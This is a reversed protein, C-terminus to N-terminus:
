ICKEIFHVPHQDWYEKYTWDSERTFNLQYMRFTVLNNKPKVLEEYTYRYTMGIKKMVEGSRMNKVDHTATIYPFDVQRLREIIATCAETVIGQRWYAKSLGYGLDHSENDSINVYGIPRNEDKLCVAYHYSCPLEYCRLFREELFAQAQELTELPFWPLFTNVEKDRLLSLLATADEQKFKRLLLRQTELPPTNETKKLAPIFDM